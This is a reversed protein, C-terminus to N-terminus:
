LRDGTLTFSARQKKQSCRTACRNGTVVGIQSGFEKDLATKRDFMRKAQLKAVLPHGMSTLSTEFSQNTLNTQHIATSSLHNPWEPCTRETTSM